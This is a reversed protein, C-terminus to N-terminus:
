RLKKTRAEISAKRLKDVADYHTTADGIDGHFIVGNREGHFDSGATGILGNETALEAFYAAEEASHDPHFVEIGDLGYHILRIVLERNAYLGPHALVAVGQAEKILDIAEEPTIRPPNAYAKGNKGLYLEFAEQVSQVVGKEMLVEAIHPRGINGEKMKKRKVVEEMTIPIKLQQLNHILMENRVNRVNRLSELQQLFQPQMYDMYYGLVHIDQGADVTSIEIGPVIEIGCKKGMEVAEQIGAVTDHDTIAFARLGKSKARQVSESPTYTGDSATTHSHLDVLEM